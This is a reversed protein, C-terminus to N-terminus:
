AGGGFLRAWFGVKKKKSQRVLQHELFFHERYWPEIRGDALRVVMDPYEYAKGNLRMIRSDNMECALVEEGDSRRRYRKVDGM